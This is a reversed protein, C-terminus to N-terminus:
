DKKFASSKFATSEIADKFAPLAFIADVVDRPFFPLVILLTRTFFGKDNEPTRVFSMELADLWAKLEKDDALLKAYWHYAIQNM